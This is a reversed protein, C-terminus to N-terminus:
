RIRKFTYIPSDSSPNVYLYLQIKSVKLISRVQYWESPTRSSSVVPELLMNNHTDEVIVFMVKDMQKGNEIITMQGTRDFIVKLNPVFTNSSMTLLGELKWEGIIWRRAESLETTYADPDVSSQCATTNIVIFAYCLIIWIKAM